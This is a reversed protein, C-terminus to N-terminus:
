SGRFTPDSSSEEILVTYLPDLSAVIASVAGEFSLWRTHFVQHFKREALQLVSQIEKLKHMHTTSYHFYKYINNVYLQYQKIYPVSDAAQRSALALRHAICHISLLYPNKKKFQTTVGTRCGVMASAGDTAIGCLKDLSINRPTFVKLLTDVIEPATGGPLEVLCLFRTHVEYMVCTVVLNHDTGIDTSEDILVSYFEARLLNNDLDEDVM